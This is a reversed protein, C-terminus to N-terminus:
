LVSFTAAISLHDSPFGELPLKTPGLSASSPVTLYSCPSLAAPDYWIYDICRETLEKRIKSTSYSEVGMAEYASRYGCKRMEECALSSPVDNFDGAILVMDEPQERQAVILCLAKAQGQRLVEFGDKAKFHTCCVLVNRKSIADRVRAVLAIQSAGEMLVVREPEGLVELQLPVFVACGDRVKAAFFCRAIDSLAAEFQEFHEM